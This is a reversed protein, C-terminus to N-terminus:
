NRRWSAVLEAWRNRVRLNQERLQACSSELYEISFKDLRWVGDPMRKFEFKRGCLTCSVGRATAVGYGGSIHGDGYRFDHGLHSLQEFERTAMVDRDVSGVSEQFM